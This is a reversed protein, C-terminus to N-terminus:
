AWRYFNEANCMNTISSLNWTEIIDCVDASMKKHHLKLINFTSAYIPDNLPTSLFKELPSKFFHKISIQEKAAYLLHVFGQWKNWYIRFQSRKWNTVLQYGKETPPVCTWRIEHLDVSKWLVSSLKHFYFVTRQFILCVQNYTIRCEHLHEILNFFVVIKLWSNISM